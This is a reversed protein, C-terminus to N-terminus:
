NDSFSRVFRDCLKAARFFPQYSSTLPRLTGALQSGAMSSSKHSPRVSKSAQPEEQWSVEYTCWAAGQRMCSRHTIQVDLADVAELTGHILGQVFRCNYPQAVEILARRRGIMKVQWSGSTGRTIQEWLTPLAMLAATPTDLSQWWLQNRVNYFITKGIETPLQPDQTEFITLVEELAHGHYWATPDIRSLVTLMDPPCYEAALTTLVLLLLGQSLPPGQRDDWPRDPYPTLDFAPHHFGYM